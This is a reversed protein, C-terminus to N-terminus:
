RGRRRLAAPKFYRKSPADDKFTLSNEEESDLFAVYYRESVLDHYVDLATWLVPVEYYNMLHSITVRWLDGRSDYQDVLAIGWSDEDIYFTRRGYVHRINKKVKAEIVWVRHLEYRTHVPNVHGPLLLDDYKLNPDDLAYNNYPIVMEKKGIFTWDYRDPAGNYLDVDDATILGDAAAVPMDYALNPAKRVRRQGSNYGWAQRAGKLQDITEHVLIAGGALRAPRKTFALYYFLRNDLSNFDGDEHYFLFDVEQQSTVLSYSGSRQVAVESSRRVVYVGRWRTMHNWLIMLPSVDGNTDYPLPFPVGGYANIIGAGSNALEATLANKAINDYIRQPASASRHTPYVPVYFTDPYKKLLGKLGESLKDAHIHMNSATIKYLLKDTKYPDPHHQGRTTYTVPIDKETIGGTWAPITGKKNGKQEAGYPTLEKTLRSADKKSVKANVSPVVLSLVALIVIWHCKRLM